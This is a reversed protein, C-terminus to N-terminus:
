GFCIWLSLTATSVLDYACVCLGKILTGMRFDVQRTQKPYLWSYISILAHCNTKKLDTSKLDALVEISTPVQKRVATNAVASLLECRQDKLSKLADAGVTHWM